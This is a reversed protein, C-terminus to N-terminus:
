RRTPENRSPFGHQQSAAGESPGWSTAWSEGSQTYLATSATSDQSRLEERRFGGQAIEAPKRLPDTVTPWQQCKVAIAAADAKRVLVVPGDFFLKSSSTMGRFDSPMAKM